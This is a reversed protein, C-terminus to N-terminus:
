KATSANGQAEAKEVAPNLVFQIFDLMQEFTLNDFLWDATITPDSRMAVRSVLEATAQIQELATLKEEDRDDKFRALDLTVRAPISTVDVERGAIKAIRRVPAVADFDKIIPGKDAM